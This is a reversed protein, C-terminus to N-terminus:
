AKFFAEKFQKVVNTWIADREETTNQRADSESSKDVFLTIAKAKLAVNFQGLRISENDKEQIIFDSWDCDRIKIPVIEKKHKLAHPLETDIIYGTNLFDISVLCVFIDCEEIKKLIVSNWEGFGLDSDDFTDILSQRKLPYFHKKFEDRYKVDSKSYSIFIKKMPYKEPDVFLPFDGKRYFCKTFNDYVLDSKNGKTDIADENLLKANIYHNNPAKILKNHKIVKKNLSDDIFQMINKLVLNDKLSDSHIASLSLSPKQNVIGFKILLLYSPNMANHSETANELYLIVKNKWVLLQFKDEVKEKAIFQFFEAIISTLLQTHYFGTFEYKIFPDQFLKLLLIESPYKPESLYQPVLYHEGGIQFIMKEHLLFAIIFDLHALANNYEKAVLWKEADNKNFYGNGLLNKLNLIAYIWQSFLALNVIVKEALDKPITQGEKTECLFIYYSDHLLKLEIESIQERDENLFASKDVIANTPNEKQINEGLMKIDQRLQDQRIDELLWKDITTKIHNSDKLKTGDIKRLPFHWFETAVFEEELSKQNLRQAKKNEKLNELLALKINKQQFLSHIDQNKDQGSIRLNSNLSSLWYHKPFTDDERIVEGEGKAPINDYIDEQGNGYVLLYNANISYFSLHANHYFDQGGFDFVQIVKDKEPEYTFINIGHTSSGDAKDSDLLINCLSTKGAQTNGLLILKKRFISVLEKKEKRKVEKEGIVEEEEEEEGFYAKLVEIDGRELTNILSETLPNNRWFLYDITLPTKQTIFRLFTTDSIRNQAFNFYWLASLQKPLVIDEIICYSTDFKQLSSFSGELHLVQLNICHHTNLEVLSSLNKLIIRNLAVNQSLNVYKLKPFKRGDIIVEKLLTNSIYLVELCNSISKYDFVEQADIREVAGSVHLGLRNNDFYYRLDYKESLTIKIPDINDTIRIFGTRKLYEELSQM